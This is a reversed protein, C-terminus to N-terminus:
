KCRKETEAIFKEFNDLGSIDIGQKKIRNNLARFRILDPPAFPFSEMPLDLIGLSIYLLPTKAEGIVLEDFEEQPMDTIRRAEQRAENLLTTKLARISESNVM